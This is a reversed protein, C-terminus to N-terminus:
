VEEVRSKECAHATAQPMRGIPATPAIDGLSRSRRLCDKEVLAHTKRARIRVCFVRVQEVVQPRRLRGVLVPGKCIPPGPLAFFLALLGNIVLCLPM